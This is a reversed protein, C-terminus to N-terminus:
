GVNVMHCVGRPWKTEKVPISECKEAPTIDAEAWGIKGNKKLM